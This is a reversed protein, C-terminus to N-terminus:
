LIALLKFRIIKVMTDLSVKDGYYERHSKLMKDRSTYNHKELDEDTLDKIVKEQIDIIVAKAFINGDSVDALDFEDGVELNKDDFLRWTVTKRGEIIKRVLDHKFKLTKM